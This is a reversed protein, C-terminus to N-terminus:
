FLSFNDSFDEHEQIAKVDRASDFQKLLLPEQPGQKHLYYWKYKQRYIANMNAGNYQRRIHDTELLDDDDVNSGDCVALPWDEVPNRLPKDVDQVEKRIFHEIKPLYNAEVAARNEYEDFAFDHHRYTFGHNDLSYMQEKGRVDHFTEERDEYDLNTFRQDPADKPIDILIQFPKERKYLELDKIYKIRSVADQPLYSIDM